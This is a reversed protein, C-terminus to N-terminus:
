GLLLPQVELPVQMEPTAQEVRIGQMEPLVLRVVVAQREPRVGDILLPGHIQIAMHRLYPNLTGAPLVGVKHNDQTTVILAVQVVKLYGVLLVVAVLVAM